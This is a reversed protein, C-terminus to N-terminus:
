SECYERFHTTTRSCGWLPALTHRASVEYPGDALELVARSNLILGGRVWTTEVLRGAVVAAAVSRIQDLHTRFREDRWGGDSASVELRSDEGFGVYIVGGAQPIEVALESCGEGSGAPRLVCRWVADADALADDVDVRACGGPVQDAVARLAAMVEDRLEAVAIDGM